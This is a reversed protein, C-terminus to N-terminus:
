SKRIEKPDYKKIIKLLIELAQEVEIAEFKQGKELAVILTDTKKALDVMKKLPMLDEEVVLIKNKTDIEKM